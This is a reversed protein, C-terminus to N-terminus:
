LLTLAKVSVKLIFQSFTDNAFFSSEWVKHKSFAKPICKFISLIGLIDMGNYM